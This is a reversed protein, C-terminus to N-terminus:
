YVIETVHNRKNLKIVNQVFSEIKSEHSVIIIQKLNLEELVNRMRDIQDESFGDTPEDLIILDKTNLNGMVHNIVQNLSLRYALSAATKEGGSLCEFDIRFGDQEVVPTFEDDLKVNINEAGVLTNFWKEFLTSFDHHVKMMISREINSVISILDDNIWSHLSTIKIKRTILVNKRSLQKILDKLKIEFQELLVNFGGKKLALDKQKEIIKMMESYFKNYSDEINEYKGIEKNINIKELNLSGVEEKLKKLEQELNSLASKKDEYSRIQLKVIEIQRVKDKLLEIEVQFKGLNKSADKINEDINKIEDSCEKFINDELAIIADKHNKEVKQKCSPCINLNVINEKNKLSNKKKINLENFKYNLKNLTDQMFNIEKQKESILLKLDMGELEKNKELYKELSELVKKIETIESNKRSIEKINNNLRIDISNLGAKLEFLVEKKEEIGKIDQKVQSIKNDLVDKDQELKKSEEKLNDIQKELDKKELELDNVDSTELDLGKVLERLRTLFIKSNEKIRKYKDIGFVKRLTDLRVENDAYLIQKMEEQPTYVTYHYVLPKSKTLLDQPYNLLELVIQKLELASAEKKKGDIIIYGTDQVITNKVRKLNRKITVNKNLVTFSLEAYGSNKGNRLLMSGNLDGRRLGFLVFDIALLVSSKGSGIDGSLLVSGEPFEIEHNIYSRINELRIKKIIM